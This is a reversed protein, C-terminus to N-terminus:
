QNEPSIEGVGVSLTSRSSTTQFPPSMSEHASRAPNHLPWCPLNGAPQFSDNVSKELLAKVPCASSLHLLVRDKYQKVRVAIKFLSLIVTRPQCGTTGRWCRPRSCWVIRKHGPGPPMTSNVLLRVSSVVPGIGQAAMLQHLALHGRANEM